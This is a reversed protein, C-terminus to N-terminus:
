NESNQSFDEEQPPNDLLDQYKTKICNEIIQRTESNIPHAIDRFNGKSTKRSPMAIFIGREGEIIRIDNVVFQNEFTISSVGRLRSEGNIKRVKVDTVKM